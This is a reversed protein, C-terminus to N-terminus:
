STTIPDLVLCRPCTVVGDEVVVRTGCSTHRPLLEGSLAHRGYKARANRVGADAGINEDWKDGCPTGTKDMLPALTFAAGAPACGMWRLVWAANKSVMPNPNQVANLMYDTVYGKDRRNTERQAATM